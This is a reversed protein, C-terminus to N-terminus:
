IRGAEAAGLIRAVDGAVATATAQDKEIVMFDFGNGNVSDGPALIVVGTKDGQRFLLTDLLELVDDFDHKASIGTYRHISVFPECKWDGILRNALTMPISVAGWRGNCEIWHLLIGADADDVLLADFSCRGFYGLNQFLTVLMMAEHVVKEGWPPVPDVREAGAFRGTDGIVKQIFLGEIMPPGTEKEPIWAQVSPSMIVPAEWVGVMLPFTGSWGISELFGLVLDRVGSNDLGRISEAALVANGFSGASDPVKIVVHANTRALRAVRAVLAAPGFALQTPPQAQRGLLEEVRRSFWLKDNTRRTLRPPPAAVRVEAGSRAAIEAALRWTGDFGIFPVINLSGACRTRAVITAMADDDDILRRTLPVTTGHEDPTLAIIEVDGLGLVDKLYAEFASKRPASVVVMDGEGALLAIRYKYAETIWARALPIECHDEYFLSPGPTLGTRVTPGFPVTAALAPEDRLLRRALSQGHDADAASLQTECLPFVSLPNSDAKPPLTGTAFPSNISARKPCM